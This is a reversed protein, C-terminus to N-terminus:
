HKPPLCRSCLTINCIKLSGMISQRKACIESISTGVNQRRMGRTKSGATLMCCNKKGLFIVKFFFFLSAAIHLRAKPLIESGDRRPSSM